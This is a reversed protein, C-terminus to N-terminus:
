LYSSSEEKDRFLFLMRRWMEKDGTGCISSQWFCLPSTGGYPKFTETKKLMKQPETCLHKLFCTSPRSSSTVCAWGSGFKQASISYQEKRSAACTMSLTWKQIVPLVYWRWSTLSRITWPILLISIYKCTILHVWKVCTVPVIGEAHRVKSKFWGIWGLVEILSDPEWCGSALPHLLCWV